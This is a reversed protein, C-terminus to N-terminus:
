QYHRYIIAIQNAARQVKDPCVRQIPAIPACGSMDLVQMEFGTIILRNFKSDGVLQATDFSACLAKVFNLAAIQRHCGIRRMPNRM